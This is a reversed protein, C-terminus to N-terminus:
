FGANDWSVVVTSDRFEQNKHQYENPLTYDIVEANLGPIKANYDSMKSGTNIVYSTTDTDHYMVVNSENCSPFIAVVIAATFLLFISHKKTSILLTNVNKM